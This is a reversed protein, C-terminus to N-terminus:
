NSEAAYVFVMLYQNKYKKSSQPGGPIPQRYPMYVIATKPSKQGFFYKLCIEIKEQMKWYSEPHIYRM